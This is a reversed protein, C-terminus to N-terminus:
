DNDEVESIVWRLFQESEKECLPCVGTISSVKEDSQIVASIFIGHCRDCEAIYHGAINNEPEIAVDDETVEDSDVIEEDTEDEQEEESESMADEPEDEVVYDDWNIDEEAARIPRISSRPRVTISRRM